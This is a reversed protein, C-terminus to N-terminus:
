GWKVIPTGNEDWDVNGIIRNIDFKIYPFIKPPEGDLNLNKFPWVIKGLKNIINGQKDILYGWSSVLKKNKDYLDKWADANLIIEGQPDKDVFGTIDDIHYKEGDFNYLMPIDGDENLM